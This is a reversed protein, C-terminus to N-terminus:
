QAVTGGTSVPIAREISRYASETAQPPMSLAIGRLARETAM